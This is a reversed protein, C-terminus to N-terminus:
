QSKDGSPKSKSGRQKARAMLFAADMAAINAEKYQNTLGLEEAEHKLKELLEREVDKEQVERKNRKEFDKVLETARLLLAAGANFDKSGPTLMAIAKRQEETLVTGDFANESQGEEILIKAIERKDDPLRPLVERIFGELQRSREEANRRRHTEACHEAIMQANGNLLTAKVMASDKEFERRAAEQQQANAEALAAAKRAANAEDEVEKQKRLFPLWYKLSESPVIKAIALLAFGGIVCGAIRDLKIDYRFTLYALVFALFILLYGIVAQRNSPPLARLDRKLFIRNFLGIPGFIPMNVYEDRQANKFYWCGRGYGMIFIFKLYAPLYIKAEQYLTEHYFVYLFFCMLTVFIDFILIERIDQIFPTQKIFKCIVFQFLSPLTLGLFYFYPADESILSYVGILLLSNSFLFYSSLGQYRRERAPTRRM